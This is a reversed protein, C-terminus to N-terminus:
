KLLEQLKRQPGCDGDEALAQNASVDLMTCWPRGKEEGQWRCSACPSEFPHHEDDGSTEAHLRKHCPDCVAVLEFLFEEFIHKYTLHHVQTAALKGCGECVGNARRLIKTRLARWKETKLYADYEKQFEASRGKELLYHKKKVSNLADLKQKEFINAITEDFPQLVDHEPLRKLASGVASGCNTCQYRVQIQSSGAQKSRLEKETHLCEYKLRASELEALLEKSLFLIHVEGTTENRYEM